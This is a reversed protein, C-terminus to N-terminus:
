KLGILDFANFEHNIWNTSLGKYFTALLMCHFRIGRGSRACPSRPFFFSGKLLIFGGDSGSCLQRSWSPTSRVPFLHCRAGYCWALSMSLVSNPPSRFAKFDDLRLWQAASGFTDQTRSVKTCLAVYVVDYLRCLLPPVVDLLASVSQRLFWLGTNSTSFVEPLCPAVM